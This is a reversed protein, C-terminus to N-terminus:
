EGYYTIEKHWPNFRSYDAKKQNPPIPVMIHKNDRALKEFREQYELEHAIFVSILVTVIGFVGIIAKGEM